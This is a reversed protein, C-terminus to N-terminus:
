NEKIRSPCIAERMKITAEPDRGAVQESRLLGDVQEGTGYGLCELGCNGKQARDLEEM